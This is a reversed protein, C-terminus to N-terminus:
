VKKPMHLDMLIAFFAAPGGAAHVAAVAAEGDPATVVNTFGLRRLIGLAVKMNIVNDEALLLRRTANTDDRLATGEALNSSSGVKRFPAQLLSGSSSLVSRMTHSCESSSIESQSDCAPHDGATTVTRAALSDPTACENISLSLAVPDTPAAAAGAPCTENNNNNNSSSGRLGSKSNDNENENTTNAGSGGGGDPADGVLGVEMELVEELGLRLRGQRVPRSVVVFGLQRRGPVRRHGGETVAEVIELPLPPLPPSPMSSSFGYAPPPMDDPLTGGLSASATSSTTLADRTSTSPATGGAAAAATGGATGRPSSNESDDSEPNRQGPWGLFVIRRAEERRCEDILARLVVTNEVDMLAVDFPGSCANSVVHAARLEDHALSELTLGRKPEHGRGHRGATGTPMCSHSDAAACGELTQTHPRMSVFPLKEEETDKDKDEEDETAQNAPISSKPLAGPAAGAVVHLRKLKALAAQESDVCCVECGWRRLSLMMVERVMACQEILLVKKGRLIGEDRSRRRENPYEKQNNQASAETRICWRFTSGRGLGESAAWMRGGM